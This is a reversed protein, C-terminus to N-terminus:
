RFADHFHSFSGRLSIMYEDGLLGVGSFSSIAKGDLLVVLDALM